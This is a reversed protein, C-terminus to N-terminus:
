SFDRGLEVEQLVDPNDFSGEGSIGLFDDMAVGAGAGAIMGGEGAGGVGGGGGAHQFPQLMRSSPPQDMYRPQFQHHQGYNPDPGPQQQLQPVMQSASMESHMELGGAAGSRMYDLSGGLDGGGDLTGSDGGRRVGQGGMGDDFAGGGRGGMGLGGGGRDFGAFPQVGSMHARGGSSRQLNEPNQFPNSHQSGMGGGGIQDVWGDGYQGGPYGMGRRMVGGGAVGRATVM